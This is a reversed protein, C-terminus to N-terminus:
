RKDIPPTDASKGRLHRTAKQALAVVRNWWIMLIGVLGGVTSVIPLMQDPGVYLLAVVPHINVVVETGIM